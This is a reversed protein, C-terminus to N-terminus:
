FKIEIMQRNKFISAREFGFEKAKAIAKDMNLGIQDISHANSGFTIKVGIEAM